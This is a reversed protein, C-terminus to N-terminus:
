CCGCRVNCVAASRRADTRPRDRRYPHRALHADAAIRDVLTRRRTWALHEFGNWAQDDGLVAALALRVLVEQAAVIEIVASVHRDIDIAHRGVHPGM